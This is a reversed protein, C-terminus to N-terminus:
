SNQDTMVPHDQSSRPPQLVQNSNTESRVSRLFGNSFRPLNYPDTKDQPVDTTSPSGV